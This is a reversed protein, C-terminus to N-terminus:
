HQASSGTKCRPSGVHVEQQLASQIVKLARNWRSEAKKVGFGCLMRSNCIVEKCFCLANYLVQGAWEVTINWLSLNRHWKFELQQAGQWKCALLSSHGSLTHGSHVHKRTDAHSFGLYSTYVLGSSREAGNRFLGCVASKCKQWPSRNEMM